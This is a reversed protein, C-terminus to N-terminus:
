NCRADVKNAKNDATLYTGLMFGAITDLVSELFDAKTAADAGTLGYNAKTQDWKTTRAFFVQLNEDRRFYNRVHSKQHTLTDLTENAVLQRPYPVKAAM